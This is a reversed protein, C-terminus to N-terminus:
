SFVDYVIIMNLKQQRDGSEDIDFCINNSICTSIM